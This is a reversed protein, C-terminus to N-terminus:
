ATQCKGGKQVWCFCIEQALEILEIFYSVLPVTDAYNMWPIPEQKLHITKKLEKVPIKQLITANYLPYIPGYRDKTIM